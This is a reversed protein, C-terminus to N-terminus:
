FSPSEELDFFWTKFTQFNSKLARVGIENLTPQDVRPTKNFVTQFQVIIKLVYQCGSPDNPGRKQPQLRKFDALISLINGSVEFPYIEGRWM